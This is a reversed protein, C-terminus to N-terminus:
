LVCEEVSKDLEKMFAEEQDDIAKEFTKSLVEEIDENVMEEIDILDKLDEPIVGNIEELAPKINNKIQDNVKNLVMSEFVSGVSDKIIEGCEKNFKKKACKYAIDDKGDEDDNPNNYKNQDKVYKIYCLYTMIYPLANLEFILNKNFNESEM